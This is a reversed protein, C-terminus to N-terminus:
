AELLMRKWGSSLCGCTILLKRITTKRRFPTSGFFQLKVCIQKQKGFNLNAVQIVNVLFGRGGVGPRRFSPRLRKDVRSAVDVVVVVSSSKSKVMVMLRESLSQRAETPQRGDALIVQHSIEFTRWLELRTKTWSQLRLKHCFSGM